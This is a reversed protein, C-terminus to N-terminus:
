CSLEILMIRVDCMSPDWLAALEHGPQEIEWGAQTRPFCYLVAWNLRPVRCGYSLGPHVELSRSMPQGVRSQHPRKLLSAASTLDGGGGALGCM